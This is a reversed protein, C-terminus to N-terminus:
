IGNSLLTFRWLVISRSVSKLKSPVSANGLQSSHFLELRKQDVSLSRKLRPLVSASSDDKYENFDYSQYRPGGMEIATEAVPAADREEDVNNDDKIELSILSSRALLQRANLRRPVYNRPSLAVAPTFVSVRQRPFRIQWPTTEALLRRRFKKRAKM